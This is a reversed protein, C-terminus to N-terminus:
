GLKYRIIFNKVINLSSNKIIKFDANKWFIVIMILNFVITVFIVKIVFGMLGILPIINVIYNLLLYLGVFLGLYKCYLLYYSFPKKAFGEKYVLYPDVIGYTLIRAISTALYIGLLGMTKGLIISLGINIIAALLPAIRGKVFLGMTTRYTSVTSHMTSIYYQLVIAMVVIKSITFDKGLWITILPNLFILLGISFFGTLWASVLLIRKFVQEKSAVSETANLNGVSATFSNMIANSILSLAAIVLLYNSVLGVATIGIIASVIINDTGSLAVGGLKYIFLSKVNKYIIRKEQNELPSPQKTKLFPYLKDAQYSIFLNDLVGIVIRIILYILYEHTILLFTMQLLSQVVFFIQHYKIVIYNKQDAIIIAKKYTFFYSLTTSLLFLLYIVYLNEKINFSGKIILGLFPMLLIGVGFITLGIIKYAKAFLDMLAKLKNQDNNALPKYMSFIIANGIGLEAFSLITLVNTFLGNIGLYDIGLVYIFITRSVFSLIITLIQSIVGFWMNKAVNSTRSNNM